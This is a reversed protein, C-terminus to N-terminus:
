MTQLLENYTALFRDAKLYEIMGKGTRGNQKAELIAKAYRFATAIEQHLRRFM